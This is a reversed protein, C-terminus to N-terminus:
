LSKVIVVYVNKTNIVIDNEEKLKEVRKCLKLFCNKLINHDGYIITVCLLYIFCM